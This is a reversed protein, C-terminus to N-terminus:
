MSFNVVSWSSEKVLLRGSLFRHITELNMKYKQWLRWNQHHTQRGAAWTSAKYHRDWFSAEARPIQHKRVNGGAVRFHILNVPRLLLLCPAAILHSKTFTETLETKVYLEQLLTLFLSLVCSKESNWNPVLCHPNNLVSWKLGLTQWRNQM